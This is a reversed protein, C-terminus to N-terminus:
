FSEASLYGKKIKYLSFGSATSSYNYEGAKIEDRKEPILAAKVVGTYCIRKM